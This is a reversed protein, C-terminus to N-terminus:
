KSFRYENSSNSFFKASHCSRIFRRNILPPLYYCSRDISGESRRLLNKICNFNTSAPACHLSGTQVKENRKGSPPVCPRGYPRRHAANLPGDSRKVLSSSRISFGRLQFGVPFPAEVNALVCRNEQPLYRDTPRETWHLCRKQASIRNGNPSKIHACRTPLPEWIGTIPGGDSQRHLHNALSM